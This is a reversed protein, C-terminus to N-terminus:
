GPDSAAARREIDAVYAPLVSGPEGDMRLGGDEIWLVRDFGQILKLDHSVMVLKQPLGALRGMLQRTALGDLSAFPEDLVLLEPRMVLVALICVLQKQGESLDHFPRDALAGCGHAALFRSAGARAAQREEGLQTLGFAVEEAVTPFIAQHDPNQFVFGVHRPLDARVLRTDAGYVRVVGTEPLLLGNLLRVLSSKGSGNLGIVAVRRESLTLTLGSLVTKGGRTVSVDDFVAYDARRPDCAVAADPTRSTSWFAM